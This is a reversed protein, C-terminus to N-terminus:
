VSWFLTLGTEPIVRKCHWSTECLIVFMRKPFDEIKRIFSLCRIGRTTRSEPLYDNYCTLVSSPCFTLIINLWWSKMNCSSSLTLFVLFFTLIILVSRRLVVHEFQLVSIIILIMFYLYFISFKLYIGFFSTKSLIPKLWLLQYCFSSLRVIKYVPDSTLIPIFSVSM